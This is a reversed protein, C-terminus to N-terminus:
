LYNSSNFFTDISLFKLTFFMRMVDRVFRFFSGSDITIINEDPIFRLAKLLPANKKFVLWYCQSQPFDSKIRQLVPYFLVISGMESLQIILIKKPDQDTGNRIFFNKLKYVFTLLFCLPFGIWYDIARMFSIDM